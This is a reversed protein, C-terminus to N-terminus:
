GRTSAIVTLGRATSSGRSASRRAPSPRPWGPFPVGMGTKLDDGVCERYELAGHDRWIRGARRAIRRYNQVQRKPIALVFGDAYPM